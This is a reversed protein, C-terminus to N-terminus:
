EEICDNHWKVSGFTGWSQHLIVRELWIVQGNVRIPLIAFRTVVRKDGYTNSRWRM